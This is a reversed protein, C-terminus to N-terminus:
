KKNDEDNAIEEQNTADNSLTEIAVQKDEQLALKWNNGDIGLKLGRRVGLVVTPALIMSILYEPLINTIVVGKIILLLSTYEMGNISKCLNLTSLFLVTNSINGLLTAVTICLIQRAHKKSMTKTLFLMLRYVSFAIIGAAVRPIITILPQVYVPFLAVSSPMFFEKFFSALGFFTFSLVGTLWENDLFCFSFTVLLVVAATSTPLGLSIARDILMAVAVTALMVAYRALRIAKNNYNVM